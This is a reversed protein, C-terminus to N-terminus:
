RRAGLRGLDFSAVDVVLEAFGNLAHAAAAAGKEASAALANGTVGHPNLDASLWGPRIRGHVKLETNEKDWDEAFSVFDALEESRVAEPWYHLMLSTEIEGGHIGYAVENADFLKDPYGFRQWAASVALMGLEIRLRTILLGVVESNGGHSSVVILRRGGAAHFVRAMNTWARLLLDPEHSFAGAFGTHEVSLGITQMPLVLVDIEDDIHGPLAGLHGRAIDCDTSLPLHPGHPEIAAVPLVGVTRSTVFGAFEPSTLEEAFCTAM